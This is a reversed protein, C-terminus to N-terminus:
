QQPKPKWKFKTKGKGKDKHAKAEVIFVNKTKKIDHEVTRHM